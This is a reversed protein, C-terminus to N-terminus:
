SIPRKGPIGQMEVILEVLVRMQSDKFPQMRGFASMRM